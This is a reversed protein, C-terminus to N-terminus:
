RVFRITFPYLYREGRGTAVGARVVAVVEYALLVVFLLWGVYVFMLVVSLVYGILLFLQFNLAEKAQHAVYRSSNKKVQWIVLPALFSALFGGVHAFLAMNQDESSIPRLASHELSEDTASLSNIPKHYEDTSDSQSPM